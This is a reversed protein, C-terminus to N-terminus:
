GLLITRLRLNSSRGSLKHAVVLATLAASIRSQLARQNYELAPATLHRTSDEVNRISACQEPRRINQKARASEDKLRVYALL